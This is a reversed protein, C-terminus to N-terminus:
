EGLGRFLGFFYDCCKIRYELLFVGVIARRSLTLFTITFIILKVLM